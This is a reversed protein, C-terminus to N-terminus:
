RRSERSSTWSLHNNSAAVVTSERDSVAQALGVESRSSSGTGGEDSSRCIARALSDSIVNGSWWTGAVPLSAAQRSCWSVWVGCLRAWKSECFTTSSNSLRGFRMDISWNCVKRSPM